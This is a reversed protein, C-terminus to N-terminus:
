GGASRQRAGWESNSLGLLIEDVYEGDCFWHAPLLGERKFGAKEFARASGINRAYCGATLRNLNLQQFAFRCVLAIARHGIGRGWM